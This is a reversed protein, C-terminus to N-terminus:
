TGARENYFLEHLYICGEAYDIFVNHNLKLKWGNLISSKILMHLIKDKFCLIGDCAGEVYDIFYM